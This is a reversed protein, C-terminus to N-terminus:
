PQAVFELTLKVLDETQLMGVLSIPGIGFDSMLVTGTATGTLKDGELRATVDFAVTKTVERVTLDGTVRFTYDQGEVYSEPLGEILSPTFIVVPFRLSELANRRIYNDRRSSDSVLQSVDIEIPGITSAPPNSLNARIEGSIHRTTGIATAFRNNQNFFTEGVEYFAVSEQPVIKYIITNESRTPSVTATATVAITATASPAEETAARQMETPTIGAARPTTSTTCATFLGLLIIGAFFRLRM